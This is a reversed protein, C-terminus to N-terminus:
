KVFCFWKWIIKQCYGSTRLSCGVFRYLQSSRYRCPGLLLMKVGRPWCLGDVRDKPHELIVVALGRQGLGAGGAMKWALLRPLCAKKKKSQLMTSKCHQAIEATCCLSGTICM